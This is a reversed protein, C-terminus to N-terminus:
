SVTSSRAPAAVCATRSQDDLREIESWIEKFIENRVIKEIGTGPAFDPHFQKALYRRLTAYRLDRIKQRDANTEAELLTAEAILARQKWSQRQQYLNKRLRAFNNMKKLWIKTRSLIGNISTTSIM